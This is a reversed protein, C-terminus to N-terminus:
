QSRGSPDRGGLGWAGFGAIVLTTGAALLSAGPGWDNIAGLSALPLGIILALLLAKLDSRDMSM